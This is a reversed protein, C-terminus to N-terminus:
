AYIFVALDSGAYTTGVATIALRIDVNPPIAGATTLQASTATVSTTGAAITLSMWVASGAYITFNIGAGTPANKVYASVGSPQMSSPLYFANCCDAQIGLTGNATLPGLGAGGTGGSTGAAGGVTGALTGGGSGLSSMSARWDWNILAGTIATVKWLALNNDTSLTVSDILYSGVAGIDTLSVTLVQGIALGGVYLSIEVRQPIVGYQLAYAQALAIADPATPSVGATISSSYPAVATADYVQEYYGTGSEIDARLAVAPDDSYLFTPEIEFQYQILLTQSSTLPIVTQWNANPPASNTNATVCVYLTGSNYVVVAGPQYTVTSQWTNATGETAASAEYIVTSGSNYYFQKGATGGNALGNDAGYTGVGPQSIGNIFIAPASGVPHQTYWQTTTGDGTFTDAWLGGTLTEGIGVYARNLYQERSTTVAVTALVNGDSGDQDSVDFPATTTGQQALHVVRWPDTWWFWVNGPVSVLQTLNDLWDGVTDYQVEACSAILPGPISQISVGDASLDALTFLWGAIYDLTKNSFTQAGVVRRYLVLDWSVCQLDCKVAAGVTPDGGPTLTAKCQDISGGFFAGLEANDIALIPTGVAPIATLPYPAGAVNLGISCNMTDRVTLSSNFQISGAVCSVPRFLTITPNGGPVAVSAATALSVSNGGSVGVAAVTTVLMSRNGASDLPGAGIVTIPLGVDSAQPVISMSTIVNLGPTTQIQGTCVVGLYVTINATNAGALGEIAFVNTGM